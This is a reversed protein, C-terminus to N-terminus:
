KQEWNKSIIHVKHHKFKLNYSLIRIKKLLKFIELFYEEIDSNLKM